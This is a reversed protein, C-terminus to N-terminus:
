CISEGFRTPQETALVAKKKEEWTETEFNNHYERAAVLDPRNEDLSWTLLCVFM